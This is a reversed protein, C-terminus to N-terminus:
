TSVRSRMWLLFHTSCIERAIPSREYKTLHENTAVLIEHIPERVLKDTSRLKWLTWLVAVETETIQVDVQKRLSSWLLIVAFPLAWPAAHVSIGTFVGLTVADMLEGMNLKINGLKRSKGGGAGGLSKATILHMTLQEKEPATTRVISDVLEKACEVSDKEDIGKTCLIDDLFTSLEERKEKEREYDLKM